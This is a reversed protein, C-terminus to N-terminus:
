QIHDKLIKLFDERDKEDCWYYLFLMSLFAKTEKQLNLDKLEKDKDFEIKYDKSANKELFNLLKEPIKDTYEQDNNKLIELLETIGRRYRESYVL